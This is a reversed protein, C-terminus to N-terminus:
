IQEDEDKIIANVVGMGMKMAVLYASYGDVLNYDRDVTINTQFDNTHYIELFRKAIKEDSPHSQAMYNPIKISDVFISQAVNVIRRLPETAGTTAMVDKVDNANLATSVAVGHRLGRRTDCLVRVGPVIRPALNKSVEFWFVKGCPTHKVMVVKNM